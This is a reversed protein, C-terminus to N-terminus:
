IEKEVDAVPAGSDPGNAPQEEILTGYCIEGEELHRCRIELEEPTPKRWM